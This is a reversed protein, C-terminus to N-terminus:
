MNTAMSLLPNMWMASMFSTIEFFVSGNQVELPKEESSNGAYKGHTNKNIYTVM